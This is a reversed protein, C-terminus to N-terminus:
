VQYQDTVMYQMYCVEYEMRTYIEVLWKKDTCVLLFALYYRCYHLLINYYVLTCNPELICGVTRASIRHLDNTFSEEM